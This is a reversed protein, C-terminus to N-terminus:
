RVSPPSQLVAGAVGPRNFVHLFSPTYSPLICSQFYIFIIQGVFDVWTYVTGVMSWHFRIRIPNSWWSGSGAWTM